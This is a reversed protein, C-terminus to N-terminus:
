YKAIELSMVLYLSASYASPLHSTLQRVSTSCVGAFVHKFSGYASSRSLIDAYM